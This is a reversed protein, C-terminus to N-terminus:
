KSDVEDENVADWKGLICKDELSRRLAPLYCSCGGNSAKCFRSKGYECVFCADCIEKRSAAVKEINENKSVLGKFGSIIGM